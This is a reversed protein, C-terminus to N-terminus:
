TTPGMYTHREMRHGLPGNSHRYHLNKGGCYQAGGGGGRYEYYGEVHMMIDGMTSLFVGVTNFVCYLPHFDLTFTPKIVCSQLSSALFGRM